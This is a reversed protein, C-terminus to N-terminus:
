CFWGTGNCDFNARKDEIAFFKQNTCTALGACQYDEPKSSQPDISWFPPFAHASVVSSLNVIPSGAEIHIGTAGAEVFMRALQMAATLGRRVCELVTTIAFLPM